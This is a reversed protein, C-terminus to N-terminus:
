QQINKEMDILRNSIFTLKYIANTFNFKYQLINKYEFKKETRSNPNGLMNKIEQLAMGKTIDNELLKLQQLKRKYKKSPMIKIKFTFDYKSKDIEIPIQVDHTGIKQSVLEYKQILTKKSVGSNMEIRRVTGKIILKYPNNNNLNNPFRSSSSHFSRSHESTTSKDYDIKTIEVNIHEDSLGEEKEIHIKARIIGNKKLIYTDENKSQIIKNTTQEIRKNTQLPVCNNIILLLFLWLFLIYKNM